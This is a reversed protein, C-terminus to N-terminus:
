GSSLEALAFPFRGTKADHHFLAAAAVWIDVDRERVVLYRKRIDDGPQASAMGM